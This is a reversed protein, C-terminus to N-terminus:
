RWLWTLGGDATVLLGSYGPVLLFGNEEDAFSLAHENYTNNVKMIISNLDPSVPVIKWTGCGDGSLVFASQAAVNGTSSACYLAAAHTGVFAAANWTIWDSDPSYM